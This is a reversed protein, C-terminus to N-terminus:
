VVSKRDESEPEVLLAAFEFETEATFATFDALDSVASTVSGAATMPNEFVDPTTTSGIVPLGKATLDLTLDFSTLSTRASSGLRISADLWTLGISTTLTPSTLSPSSGSALPTMDAGVLGFEVTAMSDPGGVFRVSSVRVGSAVKSLDLDANYEDFTFSRRTLSSSQSLKKLITLTFSTDPTANLTLPTGFVTITSATVGTVQLNINNNSSTSHNTLRVVDGVRVGATLWSGAGSVITSTTTTISTLSATAETIVTAAVWTSRFLAEFLPDFTGVSMDASYGGTVSKSGLRGMATQGDSRVEGPLIPPRNLNLGGGANFRFQYGSGGTVPTNFVSEVKYSVVKNRGTQFAM